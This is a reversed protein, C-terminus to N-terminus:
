LPKLYQFVIYTLVFYYFFYIFIITFLFNQNFHILFPFKFIFHDTKLLFLFNKFDLIFHLYLHYLFITGKIGYNFHCNVLM